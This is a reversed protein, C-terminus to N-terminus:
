QLKAKQFADVIIQVADSFGPLLGIISLLSGGILVLLTAGVLIGAGRFMGGFFMNKISYHKGFKEMKLQLNKLEEVLKENQDM